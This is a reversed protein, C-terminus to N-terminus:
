ERIRFEEGAKVGADARSKAPLAAPVAAVAEQALRRRQTGLRERRRLPLRHDRSVRRPRAPAPALKAYQHRHRPARRLAPRRETARSKSRKSCPPASKRWIRSPSSKSRRSPSATARRRRVAEFRGRRGAARTMTLLPSGVSFIQESLQAAEVGAIKSLQELIECDVPTATPSTLLLTDSILGAMLLGAIPPPIPIGAQRYCMAVISSTSGVPNNWFLIPTNSSFGGLKHHDLIEVIPVLHAGRVAQTLENHDVLILQRPIPKLFDSKSLIGVLLGHDDTSRSSSAPRRRPSRARKRWRRTPTFAPTSM